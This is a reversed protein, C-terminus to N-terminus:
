AGRARRPALVAVLVTRAKDRDMDRLAACGHCADAPEVGHMCREGQDWGCYTNLAKAGRDIMAATIRM